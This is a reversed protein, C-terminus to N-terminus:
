IAGCPPVIAFPIKERNDIISLRKEKSTEGEIPSESIHKRFDSKTLV